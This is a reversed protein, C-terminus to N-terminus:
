PLLDPVTKLLLRIIPEGSRHHEALSIRRRNRRYLHGSSTLALEPEREHLRQLFVLEPGRGPHARTWEAAVQRHWGPEQEVAQSSVPRWSAPSGLQTALFIAVFRPVLSTPTSPPLPKPPSPLGCRREATRVWAVPDGHDSFAPGWQLMGGSKFLSNSGAANMTFLWTPPHAKLDVVTVRDYMAGGEAHVWLRDPHRRVLESALRWVMASSVAHSWTFYSGTPQQDEGAPQEEADPSDSLDGAAAPVAPSDATKQSAPASWIPAAGDALEQIRKEALRQATAEDRVYYHFVAYNYGNTDKEWWYAFTGGPEPGLWREEVDDRLGAGTLQWRGGDGPQLQEVLVLDFPYGDPRQPSDAPRAGPIPEEM